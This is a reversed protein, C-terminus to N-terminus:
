HAGGIIESLDNIRYKCMVEPLKEVIDRCVFPNV